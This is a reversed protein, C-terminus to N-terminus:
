PLRKEARMRTVFPSSGAQARLAEVDRLQRQIDADLESQHDYYYSLAAYIQAMSLEGYHQFYVEEPSWGYALHDLVVDLVKYSTGDILARGDDIRIHALPALASSM